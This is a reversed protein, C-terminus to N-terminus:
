HLDSEASPSCTNSSLMLCGFCWDVTFKVRTWRLSLESCRHAEAHLASVVDYSLCRQTNNRTTAHWTISQIHLQNEMKKKEPICHFFISISRLGGSFDPFTPHKPLKLYNFAGLVELTVALMKCWGPARKVPSRSSEGIASPSLSHLLPPLRPPRCLPRALPVTCKAEGAQKNGRQSSLSIREDRRM